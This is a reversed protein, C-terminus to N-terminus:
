KENAVEFIFGKTNIQLNVSVNVKSHIWLNNNEKRTKKYYIEQLGLIDSQNKQINKIFKEIDSKIIEEFDNNLMKYIEEKKLDFAPNNEILRGKLDLKFSLEDSTVDIKVNSYTINITVNGDSYEKKFERSFTNTTLLNYLTSEDKSLIYNFNYDKLAYFNNLSIEDEIISLSNLVADTNKSIFKTLTKQFNEFVVLSNNYKENEILDAILDSVVPYYENNHELIEKPTSKNSVLLFFEDRINTDRLLYDTIKKLNGQLINESILVIKLHAFYPKKAVRYNADVIADPLTKGKGSATYSLASDGETQIDNLIEYTVCFEDDIYDIGIGTVIALNNLEINDYCGTLMLISIILIIFKKM